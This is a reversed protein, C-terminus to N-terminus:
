ILPLFVVGVTDAFYGIGARLKILGGQIEAEGILGLERGRALDYVTVVIQDAPFFIEQNSLFLRTETIASDWMRGDNIEANLLGIIARFQEFTEPEVKDLIALLRQIPHDEGVLLPDDEPYTISITLLGEPFQIAVAERAVVFGELVDTSNFWAEDQPVRNIATIAWEGSDLPVDRAELFGRPDALFEDMGEGTQDLEDIVQALIPMLDTPFQTMVDFLTDATDQSSVPFVLTAVVLMGIMAPSTLLGKAGGWRRQRVNM